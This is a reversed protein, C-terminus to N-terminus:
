LIKKKRGGGGVLGASGAAAIWASRAKLGAKRDVRNEEV